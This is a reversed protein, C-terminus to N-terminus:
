TRSPSRPSQSPPGVAGLEWVEGPSVWHSVNLKQYLMPNRPQNTRSLPSLRALVRDPDMEHEEALGGGVPEEGFPRSPRSSISTGNCPLTSAKPCRQVPIGGWRLGSDITQGCGGSALSRGGWIRPELLIGQGPARM